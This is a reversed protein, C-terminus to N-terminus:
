FLTEPAGLIEEPTFHGSGAEEDMARNALRDAERNEERFVHEIHFSELRAIRQRARRFLPQLGKNKVRYSGQIQRVLLQSDSRVHLSRAGARVAYELAAILAAYEAVNNTAVGLFGYAEDVLTEDPTSLHVGYGAKGPNGRAGGDIHATLSAGPLSKV